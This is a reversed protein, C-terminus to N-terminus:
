KFRKTYHTHLLHHAKHSNPKGLFEDYLKKVEENKHSKRLTMLQDEEYLAKAREVKLDVTDRIKQPVQPQGGGNVCGGPCGMVEIFHYNKEGKRVLELLQGAPKTGHVVAVNIDLGAVHITAEKIDDTGRVAHYEITELDEGTLVDAVTRIAAEMVGGTAGFIVGAGTYEGMIKDFSEDPLHNFNIGAQKIMKALERTTIVADVDRLHEQEMEPRAAETKKSICPMVSVVFMKKPDVKIKDAYYTKVLAGFMQHPSKCSSLNPLFDHHNFECYRIWGPSCSTIMPLVGNNQIRHLLEHGEEMITLDAAFNTDFVNNFGLRRLAAAMKGTTRTGIENGFEEGLAARVAPATQVVVYKEPDEIADWVRHMDQKETLAGVPCVNVCQGCFVCDTDSMKAQFAPGVNSNYGRNQFGLIGIGQVKKCTSVCKGCLICKSSDRVISHSFDDYYRERKAGQFQLEEIGLTEALNLLECNRSRPCTTCERNHNELLLEVNTRVRDRVRKTNTKVVMGDKVPTVCSAELRKEGEIEVLCVRCAGVENIEKMFCLTPVDFGAERCAELVSYSKPVEVPTNNITLKVM